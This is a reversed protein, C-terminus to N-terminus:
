AAPLRMNSALKSTPRASYGNDALLIEAAGLEAALADPEELMPEVPQKDNPEQSVTLLCWCRARMSRRKRMAAKCM